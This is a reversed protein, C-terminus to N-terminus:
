VSGSERAGTVLRATFVSRFPDYPCTPNWKVTKVLLAMETFPNQPIRHIGFELGDSPVGIKVPLPFKSTTPSVRRML